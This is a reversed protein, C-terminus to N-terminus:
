KEAQKPNNGNVRNFSDTIIQIKEETLPPMKQQQSLFQAYKELIEELTM